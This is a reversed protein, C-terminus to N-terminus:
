RMDHSDFYSGCYRFNVKYCKCYILQVSDFIFNSKRMSTKINDHYRSCLSGFLEGAVKSAGNYSTFKINDSKSHMVHKEEADKSSIFNIAIALQIKCADSEQLDIIM